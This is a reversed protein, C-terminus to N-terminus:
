MYQKIMYANGFYTTVEESLSDEPEYNKLDLVESTLGLSQAKSKLEGALSKVLVFNFLLRGLASKPLKLRDYYLTSALSIVLLKQSENFLM